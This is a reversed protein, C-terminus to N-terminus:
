DNRPLKDRSCSTDAIYLAHRSLVVCLLVLNATSLLLLQMNNMMLHRHRKVDHPYWHYCIIGQHSLRTVSDDTLDLPLFDTWANTYLLTAFNTWDCVYHRIVIDPRRSRPRREEKYRQLQVLSLRTCRLPNVLM